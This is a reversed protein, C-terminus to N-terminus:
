LTEDSLTQLEEGYKFVYSLLLLLGFILICTFDFSFNFKCGLIYPNQFLRDMKYVQYLAFGGINQLICLVINGVLETFAIRRIAPSIQGHFPRGEAMLKFIFKLQQLIYTTIGYNVWLLLLPGLLIQMPPQPQGAEALTFELWGVSFTPPLILELGYATHALMLAFVGLSAIVCAITYLWFLLNAIKGCVSAIKKMKTM